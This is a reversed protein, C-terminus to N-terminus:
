FGGTNFGNLPNKIERDTSGLAGTGRSSITLGQNEYLNGTNNFRVMETTDLVIRLYRDSSSVSHNYILKGIGASTNKSSFLLQTEGINTTSINQLASRNSM